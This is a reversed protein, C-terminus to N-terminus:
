SPEWLWRTGTSASRLSRLGALSRGRVLGLNLPPEVRNDYADYYPLYPTTPYGPPEPLIQALYSEPTM